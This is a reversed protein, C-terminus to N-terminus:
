YSLWHKWYSHFHKECLGRVRLEINCDPIICVRNKNPHWRNVKPPINIKSWDILPKRCHYKKIHESQSIIELNEIRNDTKIGNKHHTKEEPKLKRGLYKELIHRHYLIRRGDPLTIRMYGTNTFHPIGKKLNNWNPNYDFTGHRWFRRYHASCVGSTYKKIRNCGDFKCKM